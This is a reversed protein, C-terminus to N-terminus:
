ASTKTPATKSQRRGVLLYAELPKKRGKVTIAGLSKTIFQPSLQARTEASILITADRADDKYAYAESELRQAANVSDGVITYNVRETSGINGVTVPGTHIGIRIFIPALGRAMRTTNDAELADRMDLAASCACIADDSMDGPAGWFAMLADGIFKDITGDNKDVPDGLLRFHHTLFDAVDPAELKESLSTFGVIDTFMITLTKEQSLTDLSSEAQILRSVLKKPVYQGFAQLGGVMHNMATALDNFERAIHNPELTPVGSLDFNKLKRAVHASEIVPQAIRRGLLVTLILSVIMLIGGAILAIQMRDFPTDFKEFPYWAALTMPSDGYGNLPKTVYFYDTNELNAELLTINAKTLIGTQDDFASATKLATLIPDDFQTLSVL